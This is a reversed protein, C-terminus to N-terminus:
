RLKEGGSKEVTLDGERTFKWAWGTGLAVGIKGWVTKRARRNTKGEGM